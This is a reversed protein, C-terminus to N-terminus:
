GSTIITSDLNSRFDASLKDFLDSIQFYSYITTPPQPPALNDLKNDFGNTAGIMTGFHLSDSTQSTKIIIPIQWPDTVIEICYACTKMLFFLLLIIIFHKRM